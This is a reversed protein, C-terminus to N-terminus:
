KKGITKSKVKLSKRLQQKPPYREMIQVTKLWSMYNAQVLIRNPLLRSFTPM